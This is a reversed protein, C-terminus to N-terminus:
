GHHQWAQSYYRQCQWADLRDNPANKAINIKETQNASMTKSLRQSNDITVANWAQGSTKITL